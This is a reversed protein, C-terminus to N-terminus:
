LPSRERSWAAARPPMPTDARVNEVAAVSLADISAGAVVLRPLALGEPPLRLLSKAGGTLSGM